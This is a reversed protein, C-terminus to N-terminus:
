NKTTRFIEFPWDMSGSSWTVALRSLVGMWILRGDVAYFAFPNKHSNCRGDGPPGMAAFAEKKHLLELFSLLDKV